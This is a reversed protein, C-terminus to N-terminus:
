SKARCLNRRTDFRVPRKNSIGSDLQPTKSIRGVSYEGIALRSNRMAHDFYFRDAINTPKQPPVGSAVINGDSDTAGINIYQKHNKLISAFIESNKEDDSHRIEPVEALTELLQITGEILRDQYLSAHTLFLATQQEAAAIAQKRQELGSNLILGLSPLVALFVVLM